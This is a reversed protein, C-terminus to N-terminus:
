NFMIVFGMKTEKRIKKRPVWQFFNICSSKTLKQLDIINNKTNLLICPEELFAASGSTSFVDFEVLIIKM